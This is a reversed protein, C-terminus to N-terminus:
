ITLKTTHQCKLIKIRKAWKQLSSKKFASIRLFRSAVSNFVCLPEFASQESKGASLRRCQLPTTRYAIYQLANCHSATHEVKNGMKDGLKEQLDDIRDKAAIHSKLTTQMRKREM